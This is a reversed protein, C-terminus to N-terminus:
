GRASWDRRSAGLDPSAQGAARSFADGIVANVMVDRSRKLSLMGVTRFIPPTGFEIIRMRNGEHLDTPGVPIVSAGFGLNVMVHIAEISELEARPEPHLGIRRFRADILPAVWASRAFRIYPLAAFVEEPTEGITGPPAAIRIGQRAIDRWLFDGAIDNPRQMIAGDIDGSAVRELLRRSMGSSVNVSLGPERSRLDVLAAPMFATLISPIVGLRYNGVVPRRVSIEENIRDVRSIIQVALDYVRQGTSTLRVPRRSRDILTAGLLDELTAVQM